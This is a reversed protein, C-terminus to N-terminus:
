NALKLHQSYHYNLVNDGWGEVEPSVMSKNVMFYIPILPHDALVESEAEGLFINRRVPDTSKAARQMLSDFVKSQYGAFNNPNDSELTSLFTHPDDYDGIWLLRFIQTVQRQTINAVLVKFEENVPVIELGPLEHWMAQAALAIRKHTDSTNYRLELRLPKNAGYGAERYLQKAKAIRESASMSAYDFRRSQYGAVGDPVWGYAPKEGRGVIDNAIVERDIAMSLAQRLKLNDSLEPVTMNFGFYYVSLAPSVRVEDPRQQQMQTFAEPPITRTVHLEGARYRSLEAMPESTVFHRVRDIATNANDWYQENRVLEIVSGLQWDALKYAGNGVLNGPRTHADGHKELSGRHVPFMSPHTLLKLFYPVPHRLRIELRHIDPATVGLDTPARDGAIIESANEIDFVSKVYLAATAPDVLRRYSFVFDEATVPDGNSWRADPRLWFTYQKGDASVSWREAAAARLEGTPTLGALGEAIDRQVDHAETSAAKHVDLSEPEVGNGRNLVSEQAPSTGSGGCAALALAGLVLLYVFYKRLIEFQTSPLKM